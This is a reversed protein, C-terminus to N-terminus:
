GSGDGGRSRHETRTPESSTLNDRSVGGTVPLKLLTHDARGTRLNPPGFPGSTDTEVGSDTGKLVDTRNPGRDGVYSPLSPYRTM